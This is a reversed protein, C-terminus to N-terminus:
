KYTRAEVQLSVGDGRSGSPRLMAIVAEANAGHLGKAKATLRLRIPQMAPNGTHTGSVKRV